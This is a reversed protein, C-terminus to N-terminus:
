ALTRPGGDRLPSISHGTAEKLIEQLSEIAKIGNRLDNAKHRYETYLREWRDSHFYNKLAVLCGSQWPAKRSHPWAALAANFRRDKETSSNLSARYSEIKIPDHAMDAMYRYRAAMSAIEDYTRDKLDDVIYAAAERIFEDGIPKSRKFLSRCADQVGKQSEFWKFAPTKYIDSWLRNRLALVEELYAAVSAFDKNIATVPNPNSSTDLLALMSITKDFDNRSPIKM